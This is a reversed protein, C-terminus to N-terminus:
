GSYIVLREPCSRSAPYAMGAEGELCSAPVVKGARRGSAFVCGKIGERKVDHLEVMKGSRLVQAINEVPFNVFGDSCAHAALKPPEAKAPEAKVVKPDEQGIISMRAHHGVVQEFRQARQIFWRLETLRVFYPEATEVAHVEIYRQFAYRENEATLRSWVHDDVDVGYIPEAPVVSSQQVGAETVETEDIEEAEDAPDDVEAETVVEEIKDGEAAAVGIKESSAETTEAAEATAAYKEGLKGAQAAAEVEEYTGEVCLDKGGNENPACCITTGKQTEFCMMGDGKSELDGAGEAMVVEDSKSPPPDIIGALVVITTGLALCFAITTLAIAKSPDHKITQWLRNPRKATLLGEEASENRRQANSNPTSLDMYFFRGVQPAAEENEGDLELEDYDADLNHGAQVIEDRIRELESDTLTSSSTLEDELRSSVQELRANPNDLTWNLVRDLANYAVRNGANGVLNRVYHIVRRAGELDLEPDRLRQFLTTITKNFGNNM